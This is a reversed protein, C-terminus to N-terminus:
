GELDKAPIPQGSEALYELSFDMADKLDALAKSKTRGQGVARLKPCSAAFPVDLGPRLSVIYGGLLLLEQHSFSTLAADVEHELAAVRSELMANRVALQRKEEALERNTDLAYQLMIRLDDTRGGAAQKPRTQTPAPMDM